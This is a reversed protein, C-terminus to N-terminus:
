PIRLLLHHLINCQSFRSDTNGLVAEACKRHLPPVHIRRNRDEPACIFASHAIKVRCSGIGVALLLKSSGKAASINRSVLNINCCFCSCFCRFGEPLIKLGGKGHQPRVVNVDILKMLHVLAPSRSVSGSHIFTHQFCLRLPLNTMDPRGTVLDLHGILKHFRVQIFRHLERKRIQCPIQLQLKLLQAPLM